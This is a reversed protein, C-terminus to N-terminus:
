PQVSDLFAHFLLCVGCPVPSIVIIIFSTSVQGDHDSQYARRTGVPSERPPNEKRKKRPNKEGDTPWSHREAHNEARRRRSPPLQRSATWTRAADKDLTKTKKSRLLRSPQAHTAHDVSSTLMRRGQEGVIGNEEEKGRWKNQSSAALCKQGNSAQQQQAEELWGGPSVISRICPRNDGATPLQRNKKGGYTQSSSAPRRSAGPCWRKAVQSIMIVRIIPTERPENTEKKFPALSCCCLFIAMVFYRPWQHNDVQIAGWLFPQSFLFFRTQHASFFPAIWAVIADREKKSILRDGKCFHIEEKRKEREREQLFSAAAMPHNEM